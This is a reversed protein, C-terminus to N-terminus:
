NSFADPSIRSLAALDQFACAHLAFVHMFVAAVISLFNLLFIDGKNNSNNTITATTTTFYLNRVRKFNTGFLCPPILSLVKGSLLIIFNFYAM